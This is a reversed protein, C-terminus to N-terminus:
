KGTTDLFKKIEQRLNEDISGMDRVRELFYKDAKTFNELDNIMNRAIKELAIKTELKVREDLEPNYKLSHLLFYRKEAIKSEPNHSIREIIEAIIKRAESRAEEIESGSLKAFNFLGDGELKSFNGYGYLGGLTFINGLGQAISSGIYEGIGDNDNFSREGSVYYWIYSKKYDQRLNEDGDFYLDGLIHAAAAYGDRALIEYYKAAESYNKSVKMGVRYMEGLTGIAEIDGNDAKMLLNALEPSGLMSVSRMQYPLKAFDLEGSEIQSLFIKSLDKELEFTININIRDAALQKEGIIFYSVAAFLNEAWDNRSINACFKELHELASKRDNNTVCNQIYYKEAEARWQDVRLVPRWVKEFNELCVSIEQANGIEQAAQARYIWYPAYFRFERELYRLMSFRKSADRENVAKFLDDFNNQVLRYEDPINYKRLLNWSSNLLRVQLANYKELEQREIQWLEDNLIGRVFNGRRRYAFYARACSKGVAFLARTSAINPEPTTTAIYTVESKVDRFADSISRMIQAQEWKDYNEQVRRLDEQALIKGNITNLLEQYLAVIEPDSEISGIKLNSIINRYEYDLTIRDKTAIIRNISEIAMNLALITYQSDYDQAFSQTAFLVLMIILVLKKM